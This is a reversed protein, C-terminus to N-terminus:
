HRIDVVLRTPETLEMVRYRNPSTVGLVWTVVAEFDCTLEAERVIPLDLSQERDRVTPKGLEDHAYAAELRIELWGDGAISTPNGSGCQRVPRDIYEVHYGPLRKDRFEFVIRDFGDHQASRVATLVAPKGSNRKHVIGATGPFAPTARPKPRQRPPQASVNSSVAAPSASSPSAAPQPLGVAVDGQNAADSSLPRSRKCALHPLM